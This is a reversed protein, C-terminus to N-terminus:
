KLSVTNRFPPASLPSACSTHSTLAAGSGAVSFAGRMRLIRPFPPTIGHRHCPYSLFFVSARFALHQPFPFRHLFHHLQAPDFRQGGRQSRPARGASSCGGGPWDAKCNVAVPVTGAS